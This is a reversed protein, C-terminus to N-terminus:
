RAPMSQLFREADTNQPDLRRAEEYRKLAAQEHGRYREAYALDIVVGARWVRDYREAHAPGLEDAADLARQAAEALLDGQRSISYLMSLIDYLAPREEPPALELGKAWAERARENQGTDKFVYFRELYAEWANPDIALWHDVIELNEDWRGADFALLARHGLARAQAVGWRGGEYRLTYPFREYRYTTSGRTTLGLVHGVATGDRPADVEVGTYTYSTQGTYLRGFEGVTFAAQATPTLLAYAGGFDLGKRAEAYASLVELAGRQSPDAFRADAPGARGTGSAAVAPTPTEPAEPRAACGWVALLCTLLFLLPRLRFRRWVM